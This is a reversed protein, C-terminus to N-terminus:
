VLYLLKIKVISVGESSTFFLISKEIQGLENILIGGVQDINNKPDIIRVNIIAKKKM